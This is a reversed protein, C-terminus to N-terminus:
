IFADTNDPRGGYWPSSNLFTQKQTKSITIFKIICVIIKYKATVFLNKIFNVGIGFGNVFFGNYFQQLFGNLRIFTKAFFVFDREPRKM